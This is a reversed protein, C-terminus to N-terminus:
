IEIDIIINNDYLTMNAPTILAVFLVFDHEVQVLAHVIIRAAVHTQARPLKDLVFESM